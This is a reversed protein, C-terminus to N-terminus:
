VRLIRKNALKRKSKRVESRKYHRRSIIGIVQDITTDKRPLLVTIAAVVDSTSLMKIDRCHNVKEETVFRQALAVMAMHHHWAVWGRVQYDAMGLSTKADQFSREIWYRRTHRRVLETLSVNEDFNTLFYSCSGGIPDCICVAWGTRIPKQESSPFVIRHRCANIIKPGDLYEVRVAEWDNQKVGFFLEEIQQSKNDIDESCQVQQNCRVDAIFSINKDDLRQLLVSSAGYFADFCVWEFHIGLDKVNFIIDEAIELKTKFIQAAEPIKAKKCRLPDKTWVEPIYLRADILSSHKGDSLAAFVGVQCNDIKGMRGNYQRAVGASADGKKAVASEDLILVPKTNGLLSSVDRAVQNIVPRYDWPSESIFYQACEYNCGEVSEEMREINKRPANILLGSLYSAAHDAVCRKGNVFFPRYEAV